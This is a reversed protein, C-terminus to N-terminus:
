VVSQDVIEVATDLIASSTGSQMNEVSAVSEDGPSPRPSVGGTELYTLKSRMQALYLEKQKKKLEIKDPTPMGELMMQEAFLQLANSADSLFKMKKQYDATEEPQVSVRKARVLPNNEDDMLKSVIKTTVSEVITSTEKLKTAAKKGLPRVLEVKAAAPKGVDEDGSGNDDNSKSNDTPSTAIYLSQWKPKDRLYDCCHLWGFPNKTDYREMWIHQYRQIAAEVNEGSQLPCHKEIQMFKFCAASITKFRKLISDGTRVPYECGSSSYMQKSSPMNPSVKRAIEMQRQLKINEKRVHENLLLAYCEGLKKKFDPGKVKNGCIPDESAAIYAQCVILDEAATYNKQRKSSKSEEAVTSPEEKRAKKSRLVKKKKNKKAAAIERAIAVLDISSESDSDPDTSPNTVKLSPTESM